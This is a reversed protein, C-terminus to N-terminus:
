DNDNGGDVLYLDAYQKNLGVSCLEGFEDSIVAVIAKDLEGGSAQVELSCTQGLVHRKPVEGMESAVNADELVIDTHGYLLHELDM